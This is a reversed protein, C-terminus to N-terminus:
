LIFRDNPVDLNAMSVLSYCCCIIKPGFSSDAIEYYRSDTIDPTTEMCKKTAEAPTTAETQPTRWKIHSDGPLVDMGRHTYPM